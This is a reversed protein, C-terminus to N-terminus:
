IINHIRMKLFADDGARFSSFQILNLQVCNCVRNVLEFSILVIIRIARLSSVLFITTSQFSKYKFSEHNHRVLNVEKTHLRPM